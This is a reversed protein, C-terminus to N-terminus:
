VGGGGAPAQGAEFAHVMETLRQESFQVLTNYRDNRFGWISSFVGSRHDVLFPLCTVVDLGEAAALHRDITRLPGTAADEDWNALHELARRGFINFVLGVSRNLHVLTVGERRVVRTVRFTEDVDTVLGTFLDAGTQRMHDAVVALRRSFDHRPVADDQCIAAQSVGHAILTRAMQRYSCAAGAWGPQRRLGTVPAFDPVGDRRFAALRAPHEPLSLCWGRGQDVPRFPGLDSAYDYLAADSRGAFILARQVVRALTGDVTVTEPCALYHPAGAARRSLQDLRSPDAEIVLAAHAAGSPLARGDAVPSLVVAGELGAGSHAQPWGLHWVTVDRSPNSMDGAHDSVVIGFAQLVARLSVAMDPWGHDCLLAVDAIRPPPPSYLARLPTHRLRNAVGRWGERSLIRALKQRPGSIM